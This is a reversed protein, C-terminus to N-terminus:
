PRQRLLVTLTWGDDGGGSGNVVEDLYWRGGERVFLFRNTDARGYNTWHVIIARRDPGTESAVIRLDGIEWDQANVWWDFDLSGVLDDHARAWAEYDAFLPVLRASYIHAPEPPPDNAARAYLAYHARVFAEPDEIGRPVQTFAALALAALMLLYKAM